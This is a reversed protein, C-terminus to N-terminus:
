QGTYVTVHNWEVSNWESKRFVKAFDGRAQDYSMKSTVANDGNHDFTAVVTGIDTVGAPALRFQPPPGPRFNVDAWAKGSTVKYYLHVILYDAPKLNAVYFLGNPSHTETKIIKGTSVNKLSIQVSQTQRGNVSAGGYTGFGSLNFVLQGVLLTDSPSTPNAPATACGSLTVLFTVIGAAILANRM